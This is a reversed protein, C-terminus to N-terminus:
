QLVWLLTITPNSAKAQEDLNTQDQIKIVGVMDPSEGAWFEM